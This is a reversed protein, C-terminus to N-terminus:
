PIFTRAIERWPARMHEYRRAYFAFVLVLIVLLFVLADTWLLVPMIM